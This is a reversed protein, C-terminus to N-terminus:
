KAHNVPVNKVPRIRSYVSMKAGEEIIHLIGCFSYIMLAAFAALAFWLEIDARNM